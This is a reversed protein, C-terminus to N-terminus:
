YGIVWPRIATTLPLYTHTAYCGSRVCWSLNDFTGWVWVGGKYVVRWKLWQQVNNCCHDLVKLWDAYNFGIKTNFQLRQILWNTKIIRISSTERFIIANWGMAPSLDHHTWSRNCVEYCSMAAWSKGIGLLFRIGYWDAETHVYFHMIQRLFKSPWKPGRFLEMFTFVRHGRFCLKFRSVRCGLIKHLAGKIPVGM